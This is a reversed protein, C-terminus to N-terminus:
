EGQHRAHCSYQQHHLSREIPFVSKKKEKLAKHFVRLSAVICVMMSIKKSQKLFFLIFGVFFPCALNWYTFFFRILFFTLEVFAM